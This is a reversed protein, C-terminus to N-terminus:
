KQIAYSKAYSALADYRTPGIRSIITSKMSEVVPILRARREPPLKEQRICACHNWYPEPVERHIRMYWAGDHFAFSLPFDVCIWVKFTEWPIGHDLCYAHIACRGDPIQFICTGGVVKSHYQGEDPIPDTFEWQNPGEKWFPLEPRMRLYEVIEKLKDAIRIKEDPYIWCGDTCCCGKCYTYDCDYHFDFVDKQVFFDSVKVMAPSEEQSALCVECESIKKSEIM